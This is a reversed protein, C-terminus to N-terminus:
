ASQEGFQEVHEAFKALDQTMLPTADFIGQRLFWDHHRKTLAMYDATTLRGAKWLAVVRDWQDAYASM